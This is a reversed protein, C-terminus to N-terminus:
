KFGGLSGEVIQKYGEKGEKESMNTLEGFIFGILYLWNRLPYYVLLIPKKYLLALQLGRLISFITKRILRLKKSKTIEKACFAGSYYQSEIWSGWTQRFLHQIPYDVVKVEWGIKKIDEALLVTEAGYVHRVGRVDRLLKKRVLRVNNNQRVLSHNILTSELEGILNRTLSGFTSTVGGVKEEFAQLMAEIWRDPIVEDDDIYCILPSEAQRWGMDRALGVPAIGEVIILEQVLSSKKISPITQPLINARNRTCIIVSVRGNENLLERSIFSM